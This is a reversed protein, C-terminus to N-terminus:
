LFGVLSRFFGCVVKQLADKKLHELWIIELPSITLAAPSISSILIRSGQQPEAAQLGDSALSSKHFYKVHARQIEPCLQVCFTTGLQTSLNRFSSTGIPTSLITLSLPDLTCGELSSLLAIDGCVTRRPGQLRCFVGRCNGHSRTLPCWSRPLSQGKPLPPKDLFLWWLGLCFSCVATGRFPSGISYPTLIFSFAVGLFGHMAGVWSLCM